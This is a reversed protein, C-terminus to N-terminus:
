KKYWYGFSQAQAANTSANTMDTETGGSMNLWDSENSTFYWTATNEFTVSALSTCGMFAGYEISVVGSGITVSELSTCNIFASEGISKVSDPIEISTLESKGSFAGGAIIKTNAHITCTTFTTNRGEMLVLYPNHDNGLYYANDYEKYHEKIETGFAFDGISAISDPIKISTIPSSSFASAGISAISNGLTVRELGYCKYFAYEGIVTVHDPIEIETLKQCDDFAGDAIIKADPHITCTTIDTNIATVLVTYPNKDNGLYYANDYKKYALSNNGDFAQSGVMMVSDPLTISTLKSCGFFACSGITTVRDSLTVSALQDCHAFANSGIGTVSNPITVSALKPCYFFSFAGISTIGGEVVVAKISKQASNWPTDAFSEYDTM